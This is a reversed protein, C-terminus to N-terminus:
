AAIASTEMRLVSGGAATKEDFFLFFERHAKSSSAGIPGPPPPWRESRGFWWRGDGVVGEGAQRGIDAVSGKRSFAGDSVDTGQPSIGARIWGEPPRQNECGYPGARERRRRVLEATV